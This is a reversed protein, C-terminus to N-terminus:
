KLVSQQFDTPDDYIDVVSHFDATEMLMRTQGNLSCVALRGGHKAVRNRAIVLAGLGSSDMFMVYRLDILLLCVGVDLTASVWHLLDPASASSLIRTTPQFIRYPPSM